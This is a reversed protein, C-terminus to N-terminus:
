EFVKVAETSSVNLFGCKFLWFFHYSLTQVTVYGAGHESQKEVVRHTRKTLVTVIYVCIVAIM